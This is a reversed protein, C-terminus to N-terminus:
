QVLEFWEEPCDRDKKDFMANTMLEILHIAGAYGLTTFFRHGVRDLIPFGIRVFPINEVRAVYKGYTNAILLDVPANKIWQHLEFFDACQKIKADPVVPDLLEHLRREFHNGPSGTICYVPKAGLELLFRVVAIVHDPDGIVAVRKQHFYQQMDSMMDVLRGREIELELPVEGAASYARLAQIFADTAGIGIPLELLGAPVNHKAELAIASPHSAFHGLAITAMSDAM